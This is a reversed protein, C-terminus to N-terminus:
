VEGQAWICPFGLDLPPPIHVPAPRMAAGEESLGGWRAPVCTHVSLSLGATLDETSCVPSATWSSPGPALGRPLRSPKGAYIMLVQNKHTLYSKM